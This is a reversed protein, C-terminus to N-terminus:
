EMKVPCQMLRLAKKKAVATIFAAVSTRSKIRGNNMTLSRRKGRPRFIPTARSRIAPDNYSNQVHCFMIYALEERTYANNADDPSLDNYLVHVTYRGVTRPSHNGVKDPQLCSSWHMADRRRVEDLRTSIHIPMMHVQKGVTWVKTRRPMSLCFAFPSTFVSTTRSGFLPRNSGFTTGSEPYLEPSFVFMLRLVNSSSLWTPSAALM